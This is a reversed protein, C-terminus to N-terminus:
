CGWWSLGYGMAISLLVCGFFLIVSLRFVIDNIGEDEADEEWVGVLKQGCIVIYDVFMPVNIFPSCCMFWPKKMLANRFRMWVHWINCKDSEVQNDSQPPSTSLGRTFPHICVQLTFCRLHDFILLVNVTWKGDFHHSIPRILNDEVTSELRELIQFLRLAGYQSLVRLWAFM